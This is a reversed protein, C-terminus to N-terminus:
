AADSLTRADTIARRDEGVQRVNPCLIKEESYRDRKVVERCNRRSDVRRLACSKTACALEFSHVFVSREARMGLRLCAGTAREHDAAKARNWARQLGDTSSPALLNGFVKRHGAGQVRGRARM